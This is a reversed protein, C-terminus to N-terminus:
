WRAMLGRLKRLMYPALTRTYSQTIHGFSDRNVLVGGIVPFCRNPSCYFHTLDIVQYRSSRLRKAALVATDEQIAVSRPVACAVGPRETGAAIVKPVCNIADPTSKPNDRIVIVHKVSKPLRRKWTRQFGAIKTARMAKATKVSLPTDANQTVFLTSVKPHARLWRLASEYWATCSERPGELFKKVAESFYCAPALMSFGQWRKVKGVVDLAARWHGVHSDGVIAFHGKAKSEPAGFTCVQPDTQNKVRTCPTGPEKDKEAPLPFVSLTPNTCPHKPDRAAAGFCSPSAATAPTASLIAALAVVAATALLIKVPSAIPRFGVQLSGAM